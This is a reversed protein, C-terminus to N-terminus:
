PVAVLYAEVQQMAAAIGPGVAAADIGLSEAIEVDTLNRYYRHLLLQAAPHRAVAVAALVREPDDAPRRARGGEGARRRRGAGTAPDM